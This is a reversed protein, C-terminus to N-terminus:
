RGMRSTQGSKQPLAHPCAQAVHRGSAGHRAREWVTGRQRRGAAPRPAPRMEAPEPQCTAAPSRRSPRRWEPRACGPFASGSPTPAGRSPDEAARRPAPAHCRHSPLRSDHSASRSRRSPSPPESDLRPPSHALRLDLHPFASQRTAAAPAAPLAVLVDRVYPRIARYSRADIAPFEAPHPRIAPLASAVSARGQKM